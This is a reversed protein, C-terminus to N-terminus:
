FLILEYYVGRGSGFSKMIGKQVLDTLDRSSTLRTAKTINMYKNVRMGGEFKDPLCLLMKQLVKKQRQNLKINTAKEWFKAKIKISEVKLLTDLISNHFVKVFWDIWASIDLNKAKCTLDLVDYYEKRNKYISSAISYFNANILTTKSLIYDTIARTIRGNGDDFPHVLVFHLHAIAAKIIPNTKDNSELQELFEEMMNKVVKSPPAIFHIKERGWAGSVIQMDENDDRYVGVKISKLGSQGYPFLAKHWLFLRNSDLAKKNTKADIIIEVLADTQYTSDYNNEIDLKLIKNISSRVSSRQLIEGEIASTAVTESEIIDVLLEKSDIESMFKEITNLRGLDYYLLELNPKTYVFNPFNDQEWIWNKDNQYTKM